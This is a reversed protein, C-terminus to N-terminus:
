NKLPSCSATRSRPWRRRASTSPQTPKPSKRRRSLCTRGTNGAGTCRLAAQGSSGCRFRSRGPLIFPTSWRWPYIAIWMSRGGPSGRNRGSGSARPSKEILELEGEAKLEKHGISPWDRTGDYCPGERNKDLMHKVCCDKKDAPSQFQAGHWGVEFLGRDWGALNWKAEPDQVLDYFEM